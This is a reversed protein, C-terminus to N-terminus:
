GWRKEDVRRQEGDRGYMLLRQIADKPCLRSPTAVHATVRKAMMVVNIVEPTKASSSACAPMASQYPAKDDDNNLMMMATMMVEVTSQRSFFQGLRSKGQLIDLCWLHIPVGLRAAEGRETRPAVLTKTAVSLFVTAEMLDFVPSSRISLLVRYKKIIQLITRDM